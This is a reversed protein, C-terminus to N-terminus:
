EVVASVFSFTRVDFLGRATLKLEPIVPLAIFTLTMFPDIDVPVGMEHALKVMGSLTENVAGAPETTMLGGVPLALRAAVEGGRCLVLGGGQEKLADVALRMDAIVDGAVVINHSDHAVTSAIAGGKIAYGELIGLGIKGTEQHREIVAALSLGPNLAPDFCGDADTQVDRELDKTILNGPMLGMVRARNGPLRLALADDALPASKVTHLLAEPVESASERVMVGREAVLVGKAYVQHVAFEKLDQVLIFDAERGPAIAGKNLGYCEAVNLTAMIIALVPDLGSAVALRLHRDMHGEAVLTEPHADDTCFLCRHLAAATVGPLLAVLNRAASGQRLHVYMGRQLRDRMEEISTCEHDSRVGAAAYADLERGGLGPAHGDIMKGSAFGLDLKACVDKDRCVVGPFNMMEAVGAVRPNNVYPKLDRAVLVAGTDEFPTAPVCSPLMLRVDLALKETAELMYDIGKKGAVNALEHPDAIVTTTGHPVVMDAFREPTLMSSEIHVHGDMLGPLLYRGKADLVEKAEVEGFGAFYGNAVSVPTHLIGGGFVDVVKANRILVDASKRGAAVEVLQARAASNM